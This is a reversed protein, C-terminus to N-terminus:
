PSYIDKVVQAVDTSSLEAFDLLHEAWQEVYRRAQMVLLATSGKAKGHGKGRLLSKLETQSIHVVGAAEAQPASTKYVKGDSAAFHRAADEVETTSHYQTERGAGGIFLVHDVVSLGADPEPVTLGDAADGRFLPDRNKRWVM